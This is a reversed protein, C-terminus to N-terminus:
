FNYPTIFATTTISTTTGSIEFRLRVYQYESGNVENVFPLYHKGTSRDIDANGNLVENAGLHIRGLEVVSSAHTASNSGELIVEYLENNDSILMASVDLVVLGRYAGAGLDLIGESGNGDATVATGDHLVLATDYPLNKIAM